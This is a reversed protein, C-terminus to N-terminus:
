QNDTHDSLLATTEKIVALSAGRCTRTLRSSPTATISNQGDTQRDCDQTTSFYSFTDNFQEAGPLRLGQNVTILAICFAHNDEDFADFAGFLTHFYKRIKSVADISYRSIPM